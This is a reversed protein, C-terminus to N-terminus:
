HGRGNQKAEEAMRVMEARVQEASTCEKSFSFYLDDSKARLTFGEPDVSIMVPDSCKKKFYYKCYQVLSDQHDQNMHEIIREEAGILPTSELLVDEAEVWYIKGFGEIYRIRKPNIRYYDFGHAQFYSQVEPFFRLYRKSVLAIEEPSQIKEAKGMYSVRAGELRPMVAEDMVTLCVKENAKINKTHEAISSILFVPRGQHDLMYPCVSGYPFQEVEQSITSLIGNRQTKLFKRVTLAQNNNQM